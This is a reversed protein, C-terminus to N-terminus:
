LVWEEFIRSWCSRLSDLLWNTHRKGIYIYINRLYSRLSFAQWTSKFSCCNTLRWKRDRHPGTCTSAAPLPGRSLFVDTCKNTSQWVGKNPQQHCQWTTLHAMFSVTVGVVRTV